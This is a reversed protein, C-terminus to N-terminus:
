VYKQIQIILNGSRTTRVIGDYVFKGYGRVSVKSGKKLVHSYNEMIRGDVYVMRDHFYQAAASRSLGAVKSVIADIRESPVQIECEEFHKEISEPIEKVITINVTTRKIRTLEHIIYEGLSEHAFVYAENQDILIDGLMDREIGLNMLAGLFDRHGLDDAFKKQLPSIKLIVIPWEIEYGLEEPDGFRAILRDAQAHGGYLEYHNAEGSGVEEILDALQAEGLFTSFTFINNRFSQAALDAYRKQRSM